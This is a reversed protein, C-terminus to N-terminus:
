NCDDQLFWLCAIALKESHSCLDARKGEDDLGTRTVRHVHPEHGAAFLEQEMRSLEEYIAAKEEHSDDHAVFSHVRGDIEITSIGPMKQFSREKFVVNIKRFSDYHDVKGISKLGM